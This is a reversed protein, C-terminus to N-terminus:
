QTRATSYSAGSHSTSRFLHAAPHLRLPLFTSPAFPVLAPCASVLVDVGDWRSLVGVVLTTVCPFLPGAAAVTEVADFVGTDCVCLTTLQRALVALLPVVDPLPLPVPVRAAFSATHDFDVQDIGFCERYVVAALQAVRVGLLQPRAAVLDIAPCAFPVAWLRSWVPPSPPDPHNADLFISTALVALHVNRTAAEVTNDGCTLLPAFRCAPCCLCSAQADPQLDADDDNKRCIPCWRGQRLQPSFVPNSTLDGFIPPAHVESCLFVTGCPPMQRVVHEVVEAPLARPM